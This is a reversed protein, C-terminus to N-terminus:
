LSKNQINHTSHQPVWLILIISYFLLFAGQFSAMHVTNKKGKNRSMNLNIINLHIYVVDTNLIFHKKM